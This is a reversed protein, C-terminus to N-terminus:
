TPEYMEMERGDRKKEVRLGDSTRVPASLNLLSESSLPLGAKLKAVRGKEREKRRGGKRGMSTAQRSVGRSHNDPPAPSTAATSHMGLYISRARHQCEERKMMEKKM